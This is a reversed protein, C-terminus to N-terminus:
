GPPPDAKLTGNGVFVAGTTKGEIPASLYFTGTFTMIVRDRKLSLNSVEIKGGSLDFAKVRDYIEQEPTRTQGLAVLALVPFFCAFAVARFVKIMLIYM